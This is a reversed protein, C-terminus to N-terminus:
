VYMSLVYPLSVTCVFKVDGQINRCVPMKAVIFLQIASTKEDCISVLHTNALSNAAM